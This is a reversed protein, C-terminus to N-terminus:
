EMLFASRETAPFSAFTPRPRRPAGMSNLFDQVCEGRFRLVARSARIPLRGKEVKDEYHVGVRGPAGESELVLDRRASRSERQKIM